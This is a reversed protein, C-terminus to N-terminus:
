ALQELQHVWWIWEAEAGLAGSELALAKSWLLMLAGGLVAVSRLGDWQESSLSTRLGQELFDRYHDVVQEKPRALRAGTVALYYGLDITAPGFGMGTWDFASLRGTPLLAFNGIKADGHLLTPPLAAYRNALEDAPTLVLTRVPQPLAPLAIRWGRDVMEFVPHPKPRRLEEEAAGPGLVSFRRAPPALWPLQLASSCWYHAHLTALSRLLADEQRATLPRAPDHLLYDDLDELLLGMEGNELAFALYPCDFVEWVGDLASEALLAAERGAVDGTRYATWDSAPRVRKLVFRRSEGGALRVTLREHRAASFGGTQLRSREIGDIPGLLARLSHPNSLDRIGSLRLATL